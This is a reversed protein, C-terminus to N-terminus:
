SDVRRSLYNTITELIDVRDDDSIGLFPRAPIDGWPIPLKSKATSGFEGKEAGFQHVNAYVRNSGVAASDRTVATVLNQLYGSETLIKEKNRKKRQKTSEKLPKWATGDPAEEDVFRQRSSILLQESINRMVPTMDTTAAILNNLADRVDNDDITIDIKM